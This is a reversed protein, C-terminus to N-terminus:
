SRYENVLDTFEKFFENKRKSFQLEDASPLLELPSINEKNQSRIALPCMELIDELFDLIPDSIFPLFVVDDGSVLEKGIRECFLHLVNNGASDICNAEKPCLLLAVRCFLILVSLPVSVIDFKLIELIAHLPSANEKSSAKLFVMLTKWEPSNEIENKTANSTSKDKSLWIRFSQSNNTVFFELPTLGDSDTVSLTSKDEDICMQLTEHFSKEAAIHLASRGEEDQQKVCEPWAKILSKILDAPAKKRIAEKLITTQPSPNDTEPDEGEMLYFQMDSDLIFKVEEPNEKLLEKADDWRREYLALYLPAVQCAQSISEKSPTVASIKLKKKPAEETLEPRKRKHVDDNLVRCPSSIPM